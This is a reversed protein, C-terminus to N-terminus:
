RVRPRAIVRRPQVRLFLRQCGGFAIRLGADGVTRSYCPPSSADEDTHVRTAACMLRVGTDARAGRPARAIPVTGRLVVFVVVSIADMVVWRIPGAM